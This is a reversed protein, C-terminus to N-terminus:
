ASLGVDQAKDVSNGLGQLDRARLGADKMKFGM